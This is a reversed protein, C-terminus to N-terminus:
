IKANDFKGTGIVKKIKDLLTDLMYNSVMVNKKMM